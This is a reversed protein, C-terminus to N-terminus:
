IYEEAFKPNASFDSFNWFYVLPKIKGWILFIIQVYASLAGVQQAPPLLWWRQWSWAQSTSPVLLPELGPQTPPAGKSSSAAQSDFSGRPSVVTTSSAPLWEPSPTAGLYQQQLYNTPGLIAIPFFIPDGWHRRARWSTETYLSSALVSLWM